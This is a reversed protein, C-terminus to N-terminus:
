FHAPSCFKVYNSQMQCIRNILIHAQILPVNGWPLGMCQVHLGEGQFFPLSAIFFPQCVPKIVSLIY